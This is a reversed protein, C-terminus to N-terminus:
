LSRLARKQKALAAREYRELGVLRKVAATSPSKLLEALMGIRAERVRILEEKARAVDAAVEAAAPEGLYTSISHALRNRGSVEENWVRALGHRLANRSSKKKGALTKPGRSKKANKRNAENQLESAVQQKRNLPVNGKFPRHM